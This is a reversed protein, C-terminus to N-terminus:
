LLNDIEIMGFTKIFDEEGAVTSTNDLTVFLSAVTMIVVLLFAVLKKM